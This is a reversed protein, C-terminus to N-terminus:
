SHSRRRAVLIAAIGAVLTIAALSGATGIEPVHWPEGCCPGGDGGDHALAPLTSATSALAAILISLRM